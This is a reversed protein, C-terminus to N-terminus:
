DIMQRLLWPQPNKPSSSREAALARKSASSSLWIEASWPESTSTTPQSIAPEAAVPSINNPEVSCYM